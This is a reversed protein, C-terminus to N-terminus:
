GLLVGTHRPTVVKVGWAMHVTYLIGGFTPYSRIMFPLGSVPDIMTMEDTALDGASPLAPARAVLQIADKDFFINRTTTAIVTIARTAAGQAVRLGPEQLVISDGAAPNAGAFSVSAVVYKNTDNAFTIVDGAAVVGTGATALPITTQGVTFAAATSTANAMAGAAVTGIAGSERIAFGSVDLLTGQRLTGVTGAENAKTLQGLTRLNAGATTDIVMQLQGTPAGNDMLIKRAQATDALTSAFPVTNVAGYARSGGLYAATWLDTEIENTLKRMAQTFRDRMILEYTGGNRLSLEDEGNWLVPQYKSKSITLDTYGVTVGGVDPVVNSPTFTSSAGAAAVVPIRVTENLAAKAAAANRNVAPIFGTLERSVTDGAEYIVPILGTLTNTAM